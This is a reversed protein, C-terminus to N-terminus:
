VDSSPRRPKGASLKGIKAGLSRLNSRVKEVSGGMYALSYGVFCNLFESDKVVDLWQSRQILDQYAKKGSLDIGSRGPMLLAFLVTELAPVSVYEREPTVMLPLGM